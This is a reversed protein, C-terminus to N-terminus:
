NLPLRAGFVKIHPFTNTEWKMIWESIMTNDGPYWNIQTQEAEERRSHLCCETDGKYSRSSDRHRPEAEQAGFIELRLLTFRLWNRGEWLPVFLFLSPLIKIRTVFASYCLCHFCSRTVTPPCWMNICSFFKNIFSFLMHQAPPSSTKVSNGEHKPHSPKYFRETLTGM